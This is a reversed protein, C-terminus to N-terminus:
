RCNNEPDSLCVALVIGFAVAAGGVVLGVTGPVNAKRQEVEVIEALAVAM